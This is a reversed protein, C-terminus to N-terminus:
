GYPSLDLGHCDQLHSAVAYHAGLSECNEAYGGVTPMMEEITAYHFAMKPNPLFFGFRLHHATIPRAQATTVENLGLAM